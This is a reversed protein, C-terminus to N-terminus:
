QRAFELRFAAARAQPPAPFHGVRRFAEQVSADFTACGSSSLIKVSRLSGNADVQFEVSAPHKYNTFSQPQFWNRDILSKVQSLYRAFADASPAGTTGSGIRPPAVPAPAPAPAPQKKPTPTKPKGHQKVFDEYSMAPAPKSPPQPAPPTPATPLAPAPPTPLAPAPSPTSATEGPLDELIFTQRPETLSCSTWFLALILAFFFAAHLIVAIRLGAKDDGSLKLFQLLKNM